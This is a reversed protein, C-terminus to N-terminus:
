IKEISFIVKQIGKLNEKRTFQEVTIEYNGTKPFRAKEQLLSRVELLNNGNGYWKGQADAFEIPLVQSIRNGDPFKTNVRLYLNQFPFSDRHFFDLNINYKKSTDSIAFPFKCSDAYSWNENQFKKEIEVYSPKKCGFIILSAFILICSPILIKV